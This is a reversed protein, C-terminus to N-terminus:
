HITYTNNVANLYELDDKTMSEDFEIWNVESIQDGEHNWITGITNIDVPEFLGSEILFSIREYMEELSESNIQTCLTYGSHPPLEKKGDAHFNIMLTYVKNEWLTVDFSILDFDLTDFVPWEKLVNNEDDM